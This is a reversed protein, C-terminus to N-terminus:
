HLDWSAIRSNLQHYVVSKVLQWFPMTLLSYLVIRLIGLVRVLNESGIFSLLSTIPPIYWISFFIFDLVVWLSFSLLCSIWIVVLIKLSNRKTLFYSKKISKLLRPKAPLPDLLFIRSYFLTLLIIYVIAAILSLIYTATEKGIFNLNDLKLAFM